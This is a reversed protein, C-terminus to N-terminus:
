SLSSFPLRVVGTQRQREQALRKLAERYFTMVRQGLHRPTLELRAAEACRGYPDGLKELTQLQQQLFYTTRRCFRVVELYQTADQFRPLRYELTNYCTPFRLWPYNDYFSFDAYECFYRGWFGETYHVHDGLHRLLPDFIDKQLDQLTYQVSPAFGVHLHTGCCHDVLDRLQNLVPLHARFASLSCYIPSKYEDSVTGDSTRLYGCGLLALARDCAARPGHIEFEVSFSPLRSVLGERQKNAYGSKGSLCAPCVPKNLIHALQPYLEGERTKCVCCVTSM